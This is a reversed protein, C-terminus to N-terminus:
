AAEEEGDIIEVKLEPQNAVVSYFIEVDHKDGFDLLAAISHDDLHEANDLWLIGIGPKQRIAVAAATLTKQSNSAQVFPVGGLLLEGAGIKLGAIGLDVGDLVRRRLDRLGTLVSEERQHVAEAKEVEAGLAIAREGQMQRKVMQKNGAECAELGARLQAIQPRPDPFKDAAEQCAAAEVALEAVVGNGKTTRIDLALLAARHHERKAQLVAIQADLAGISEAERERQAVLGALKEQAADAEKRAEGASAALARRQDDKAQLAAIKKLTDGPSSEREDPRLPGGIGDLARREEALAAKKQEVVRGADRRRVYYAGTEDASLRELYRYASEGPLPEHKEGTITLVEVAPPEVGVVSLVTDVQDISRADIFETLNGSLPGILARLMAAPDKVVSGDARELSLRHGKPTFVLEVTFETAKGDGFDAKLLAKKEGLRIPAPCSKTKYGRLLTFLGECVSTKGAGNPGSLRVHHGKPVIKIAKISKFNEIVLQNLRLPKRSTAASM